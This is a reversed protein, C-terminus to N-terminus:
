TTTNQTKPTCSSSANACRRMCYGFRLAPGTAREAPGYRSQPCPASGIRLLSLLVAAIPPISQFEPRKGAPYTQLHNNNGRVRLSIYAIHLPLFFGSRLRMCGGAPSVRPFGEPESSFKWSGIQARHVGNSPYILIFGSVGAGLVM